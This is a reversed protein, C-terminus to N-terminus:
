LEHLKVKGFTMYDSDHLTYGVKKWKANLNLDECLSLLDNNKDRFLLGSFQCILIYGNM